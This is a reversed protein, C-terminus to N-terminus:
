YQCILIPLRILTGDTQPNIGLNSDAIGNEIAKVLSSDWVQITITSADPTSINVLQNIPTKSGYSEILINDLMSLNARSTRISSLEKEFHTIANDMKLKLASLDM